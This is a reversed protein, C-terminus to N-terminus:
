LGNRTGQHVKAGDQEAWFMSGGKDLIDVQKHLESM